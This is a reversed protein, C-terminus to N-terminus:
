TKKNKTKKKNKKVLATLGVSCNATPCIASQDPHFPTCNGSTVMENM